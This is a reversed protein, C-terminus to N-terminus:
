FQYLLAFKSSSVTENNEARVVSLVPGFIEDKYISMDKLMILCLPALLIEM